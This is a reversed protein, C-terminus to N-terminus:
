TTTVLLFNGDDEMTLPRYIIVEVTVFEPPHNIIEEQFMPTQTNNKLKDNYNLVLLSILAIIVIGFIMRLWIEDAERYIKSKM